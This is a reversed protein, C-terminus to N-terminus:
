RGRETIGATDDDENTVTVNSADKGDYNGDGSTAAATVITYVVDGDDVFDNVGTVTVTQATDWDAATFTLSAPSVDGETGDASSLGIAVDGTPESTLVVTFQATGGAETTELGSVPNVTIGASDNDQNTVSVNSANLTNYNTDGSTAAATEITYVVDGDAVDDNVGAVTVTQPTSWNTSNFTVPTPSVTGETLDLSTLSITVDATPETDLVVTFTDTGGGEDTFLGATPAVTIGATDDDVNTVTVDSPDIVDYKGDTSAAEATVITYVVDGDDVDDNVGTVTVTQAVDWNTSDFTVSAPAVTGEGPASSSLGITVSAVPKTGLVVTFTATGLGETTVLGSTPNVTIGATDNDQNTV